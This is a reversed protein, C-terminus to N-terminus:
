AFQSNPISENCSIGAIIKALKVESQLVWHVNYGFIDENTALKIQIQFM